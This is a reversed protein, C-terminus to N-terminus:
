IFFYNVTFIFDALLGAVSFLYLIHEFYTKNKKNHFYYIFMAFFPMAFLDGYHTLIIIKQNM